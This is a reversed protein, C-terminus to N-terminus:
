CVEVEGGCERAKRKRLGGKWKSGKVVDEEEDLDMIEEVM